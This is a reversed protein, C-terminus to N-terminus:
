FNWSLGMLVSTLENSTTMTGLVNNDLDPFPGTVSERPVVYFAAEATLSESLKLGLGATFHHKFMAPAGTATLVVEQRIPIDSYNYGARVTLKENMQYQIGTKYVWVNRWGFPFVIRDVIGGPSGFGAVGDYEIWMVDFAIDTKDNPQYGVGVTANVPGDLDFDLERPAGFNGTPPLEPYAITSNWTFPDYDQDTTISGGFSLKESHEYHFGLQVSFSLESVLNGGQPYFRSDSALPDGADSAPVDFVVHPLPAIALEALYANLAIGVSLKDTAQYGLAVPIRTVRYDTYIRGFGAPPIDFLISDPDAPYDTRFGAVAVLGFGYGFKSGPEHSTWGISPLVGVQNSPKTIGSRDGNGGDLNVEIEIGDEFFESGFLVRNGEVTTLLAPNFMLVGVPDLALAAGAGAMSSNVPGFGHLMHGNGALAPWAAVAFGLCLVLGRKLQM